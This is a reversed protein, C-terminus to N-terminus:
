NDFVQSKNELNDKVMDSTKKPESIEYALRGFKLNLNNYDNPDTNTVIEENLKNIIGEALDKHLREDSGYNATPSPTMELVKISANIVKLCSSFIHPIVIITTYSENLAVM